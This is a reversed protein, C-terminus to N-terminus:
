GCVMCVCLVGGWVCLGRVVSQNDVCTTFEKEQLVPITSNRKVVKAMMGGAAPLPCRPLSRSPMSGGCIGARSGRSALDCAPRQLPQRDTCSTLRPPLCPPPRAGWVGLEGVGIGLSLPTVDLLLLDTVQQDQEGTLIAAQPAPPVLAPLCCRAALTM